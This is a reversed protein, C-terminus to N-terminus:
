IKELLRNFVADLLGSLSNNVAMFRVAERAEERVHYGKDSLGSIEHKHIVDRCLERLIEEKFRSKSVTGSTLHMENVSRFHLGDPTVFKRLIARIDAKLNDAGYIRQGSRIQLGEVFATGEEDGLYERFIASEVGESQSESGGLFHCGVFLTSADFKCYQWQVNDFVCGEFRYGSFNLRAISPGFVLGKLTKGGVLEALKASREERTSGRPALLETSALLLQAILRRAFDLRKPLMAVSLCFKGFLKQIVERLVDEASIASYRVLEIMVESIDAIESIQIDSRNSIETIEDFGNASNLENLLHSAILLVRVQEQSFQWDTTKEILPHSGFSQLCNNVAVKDLRPAAMEIGFRVEDDTLVGSKLQQSSTYKLALMQQDATLPLQQRLQERECLQKLLWLGPHEQINSLGESSKHEAIDGTLKLSFGKGAFEPNAERLKEFITKARGVVTANGPFRKDFYGIARNTDFPLLEFRLYSDINFDSQHAVGEVDSAWFTTRSTILLRSDTEEALQKLTRLVEIAPIAGGNRLVYEDFGDFVICFHGAKLAVTLFEDEFGNLWGIQAHFYSFSNTITKAISGLDGLRMTTWQASSVYIPIYSSKKALSSVLFEAMFTKGQGPTALLVACNKTTSISAATQPPDTFFRELSYQGIATTVGAPLQLQPAVFDKPGRASLEKRYEELESGIFSVLYSKLSQCLKANEFIPKPAFGISEAFVVHLNPERSVAQRAEQANKLLAKSELYLVKFPIEAAHVKYCGDHVRWGEGVQVTKVSISTTRTRNVLQVVEDFTLVAM